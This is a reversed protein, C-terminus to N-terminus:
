STAQSASVLLEVTAPEFGAGSRWAQESKSEALKAALNSLRHDSNLADQIAQLQELAEPQLAAADTPQLRIGDASDIQVRLSPLGPFQSLFQELAEQFAAYHTAFSSPDSAAEGKTAANDQTTANGQATGQTAEVLKQFPSAVVQGMVQATKALTQGVQGVIAPALGLAALHTPNIALTGSDSTRSPSIPGGRARPIGACVTRRADAGHSQKRNM